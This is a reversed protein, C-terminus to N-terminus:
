PHLLIHCACEFCDWWVRWYDIGHIERISGELRVFVIAYMRRTRSTDLGLVHRIHATSTERYEQYAVYEPIHTRIRPYRDAIEYARDLFKHEQQRSEEPFSLKIVCDRKHDGDEGIEVCDVVM